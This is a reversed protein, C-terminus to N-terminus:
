VTQPHLSAPAPATERWPPTVISHLVWHRIERLLKVMMSPRIGGDLFLGQGKHQRQLVKLNIHTRGVSNNVSWLGGTKTWWDLWGSIHQSTNRCDKLTIIWWMLPMLFTRASVSYCKKRTNREEEEINLSHIFSSLKFAPIRTRCGKM